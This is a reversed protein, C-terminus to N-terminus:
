HPGTGPAALEPYNAALEPNDPVRVQQVRPQHRSVESVERQDRQQLQVDPRLQRDVRNELNIGATLVRLYKFIFGTAVKRSSRGDGRVWEWQQWHPDQGHQGGRRPGRDGALIKNTLHSYWAMQNTVVQEALSGQEVLVQQVCHTLQSYQHREQFNNLPSSALKEIEKKCVWSRLLTTM